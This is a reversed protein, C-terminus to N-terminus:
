RMRMRSAYKKFETFTKRFLVSAKLSRFLDGCVEPTSM